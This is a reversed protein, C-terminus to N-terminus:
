ESGPNEFINRQLRKRKYNSDEEYFDKRFKAQKVEIQM